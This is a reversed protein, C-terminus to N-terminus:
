FFFFRWLEYDEMKEPWRLVEIKGGEVLQLKLNLVTNRWIGSRYAKAKVLPLEWTEAPSTISDHRRCLHPCM